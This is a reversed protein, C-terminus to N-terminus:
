LQIMFELYRLNKKRDLIENEIKITSIIKPNKLTKLNITNINKDDEIKIKESNEKKTDKNWIDIEDEANSPLLYIFIILFSIYKNLSKLKM